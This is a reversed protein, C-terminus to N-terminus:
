QWYCHSVEEINESAFAESNSSVDYLITLYVKYNILIVLWKTTLLFKITIKKSNSTFTGFNLIMKILHRMPVLLPWHFLGRLKFPKKISSFECMKTLQNFIIAYPIPM